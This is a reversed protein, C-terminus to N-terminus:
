VMATGSHQKIFISEYIKTSFYIQIKVSSNALGPFWCQALQIPVSENGIDVGVLQSDAAVAPIERGPPRRFSPIDDM